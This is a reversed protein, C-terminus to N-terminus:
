PFLLGRRRRLSVSDDPLYSKSGSFEKRAQVESLMVPDNYVIGGTIAEAANRLMTGLPVPKRPELTYNPLGGLKSTKPRWGIMSEDLVIAVIDYLLSAKDNWQDLFPTFMDWPVDRKDEYWYQEPSWLWPLATVFAQFENKEAYQGFDPYM